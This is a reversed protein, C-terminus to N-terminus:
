RQILAERLSTRNLFYKLGAFREFLQDIQRISMKEAAVKLGRAVSAVERQNLIHHVAPSGPLDGTHFMALLPAGPRLTHHVRTVVEERVFGPLFQLQDWVLAGDFDADRFSCFESLFGQLAEDKSGGTEQYGQVVDVSMAVLGLSSLYQFTLDSAAGLHLVKGGAPLLQLLETLGTSPRRSEEPIRGGSAGPKDPPETGGRGGLWSPWRRM